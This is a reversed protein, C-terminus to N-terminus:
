HGNGPGSAGEASCNKDRQKPNRAAEINIGSAIQEKQSEQWPQANRTVINGHIKHRVFARTSDRLRDPTISRQVNRQKLDRQDAPKSNSRNDKQWQKYHPGQV